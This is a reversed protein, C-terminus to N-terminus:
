EADHHVRCLAACSLAHSLVVQDAGIAAAAAAAAAADGPVM